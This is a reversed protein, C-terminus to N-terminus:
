EEEKPDEDEESSSSNDLGDTQLSTFYMMEHLQDHWEQLHDDGWYELKELELLSRGLHEYGRTERFKLAMVYKQRGTISKKYHEWMSSEAHTIDHALKRPAVSDIYKGM